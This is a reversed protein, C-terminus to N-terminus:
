MQQRLKAIESDRVDETLSSVTETDLGSAQAMSIASNYAQQTVYEVAFDGNAEHTVIAGYNGQHVAFNITAANHSETTPDIVTGASASKAAIYFTGSPTIDITANFPANM